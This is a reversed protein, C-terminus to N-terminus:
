LKYISTKTEDAMVTSIKDVDYFKMLKKLQATIEDTFGFEEGIYCIVALIPVHNAVALISILQNKDGPYNKYEKVIYSKNIRYKDIDFTNM